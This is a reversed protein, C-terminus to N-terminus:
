DAYEHTKKFNLFQNIAQSNNSSLAVNISLASYTAQSAYM